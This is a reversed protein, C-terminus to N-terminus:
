PKVGKPRRPPNDSVKADCDESQASGSFGAVMSIAAWDLTAGLGGFLARCWAM